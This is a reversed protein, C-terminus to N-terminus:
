SRFVSEAGNVPWGSQQRTLEMRGSARRWSTNKLRSLVSLPSGYFSMIDRGARVTKNVEGVSIWLDRDDFVFVAIEASCLHVFGQRWTTVAVSNPLAVDLMERDEALFKIGATM